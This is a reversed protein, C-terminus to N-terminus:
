RVPLAADHNRICFLHKDGRIFISGGSIAPSAYVAEGLSNTGLVEHKPGAKIVFSDGDESTLVIRGEFAVPSAFFRAPVPVRGGAYKVEGTKIDLCTLSGNDTMLYVYDGYLIPSPVYATGKDYKWLIRDTESLEGSGGLRVAYSRKAASGASLVAIGQGAVISPIAHSIVGPARWLEKGTAPDYGAGYEAGTAILEARKDGKAIVPTSWSARALRAAKWVQRGTKKDLAFLASGDGDGIDCQLILLDQYLLPSTGAGLGAQDVWGFSAKWARKGDMDFAYLGETGFYTYVFNGDTVQSPSAYTNAKHRYDAIANDYTTREWLIAGTKADM